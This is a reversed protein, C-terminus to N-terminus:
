SAFTRCTAHGEERMEGLIKWGPFFIQLDPSRGVIQNSWWVQVTIQQREIETKWAATKLNCWTLSIISFIIVYTNSTSVSQSPALLLLACNWQEMLIHYTIIIKLMAVPSALWFKVLSDWFKSSCMPICKSPIWRVWIYINGSSSLGLGEESDSSQMQDVNFTQTLILFDCKPARQNPRWLRPCCDWSSININCVGVKLLCTEQVASSVVNLRCVSGRNVAKRLCAEAKESCVILLFDM